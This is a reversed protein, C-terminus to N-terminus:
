RKSFQFRARAGRQGYKKREKERSDRTLFGVIKLQHRAHDDILSLARSIGHRIAGAQGSFGGGNVNARVDFKGSLKTVTFPDLIVQRLLATPLYKEPTTKNITVKGTGPTLIIRAVSRKRRGTATYTATFVREDRVPEEEPATTHVVETLESTDVEQEEVIENKEVESM